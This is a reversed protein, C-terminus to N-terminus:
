MEKKEENKERIEGDWLYIGRKGTGEEKRTEREGREEGEKM